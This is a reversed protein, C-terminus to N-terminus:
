ELPPPKVARSMYAGWDVGQFFAHAKIDNADRGPKVLRRYPNKKLLQRLLDVFEPTALFPLSETKLLGREDWSPFKRFMLFYLTVGYNWWDVREDYSSGKEMEPPMFNPTGCKFRMEEGRYLYFDALDFDYVAIHGDKDLGMNSPKIDRHVVSANHLHEIALLIEIAFFKVEDETFHQRDWLSHLDDIPLYEIVVLFYNHDEHSCCKKVLYPGGNVLNLIQEEKRLAALDANTYPLKKVFKGAFKKEEGEPTTSQLILVGGNESGHIEGLVVYGFM